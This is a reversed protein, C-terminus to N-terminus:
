ISYVKKSTYINTNLLYSNKNVKITILFKFYDIKNKTFDLVQQVM